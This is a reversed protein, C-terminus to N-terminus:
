CRLCSASAAPACRPACAGPSPVRAARRAGGPGDIAPPTGGHAPAPCGSGTAPRRVASGDGPGPVAAGQHCGLDAHPAASATLSTGACGDDPAASVVVAPRSGAGAAIPQHGPCGDPEVAVATGPGGPSATGLLALLALSVVLRLCHRLVGDGPRTRNPM